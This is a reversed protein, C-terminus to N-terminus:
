ANMREILVPMAIRFVVLGALFLPVAALGYWIGPTAMTTSGVLAWDRAVVLLPCAPNIWNLVSGEMPEYIIPTLIMWFPMAMMRARLAM